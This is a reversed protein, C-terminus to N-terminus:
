EILKVETKQLKQHLGLNVYKCNHLNFYVSENAYAIVPKKAIFLMSQFKFGGGM